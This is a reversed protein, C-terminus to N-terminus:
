AKGMRRVAHGRSALYEKIKFINNDSFTVMTGIALAEVGHAFAADLHSLVGAGGEIVVPVDVAGAASDHLALDLGTRTGERSVACIRIEGAGRAVVETTWHQWTMGPHRAASRHDYLFTTGDGEVVDIGVVVAQSGFRRALEDVLAPRDIAGSTVMIKDAGRELCAAAIDTSVIGGGITLPVNCDTAVASIGEIDPLRRDRAADIDALVIEDIGQAALMRVTAKPDGADRYTAFHTGKVLRDKRLLLSAIVRKFPM